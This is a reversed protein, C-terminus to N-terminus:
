QCHQEKEGRPQDKRADAIAEGLAAFKMIM